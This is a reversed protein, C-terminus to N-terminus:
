LQEVLEASGKKELRQIDQKFNMFARRDSPSGPVTTKTNSARSKLMGHKRKRVYVWGEAVLKRILKNLEKDSSYKCM